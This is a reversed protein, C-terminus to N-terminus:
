HPLLPASENGGASGLKALTKIFIVEWVGVRPITISVVDEKQAFSLPISSHDPSEACVTTVRASSPMQVMLAVNEAPVVREKALQQHEPLQSFTPINFNLIHLIAGSDAQLPTIVLRSANGHTVRLPQGAAAEVRRVLELADPLQRDENFPFLLDETKIPLPKLSALVTPLPKQRVIFNETRQGLLGFTLLTKRATAAATLFDLAADSLCTGTPILFVQYRAAEIESPYELVRVDYPIHAKLLTECVGYLRAAWEKRQFVADAASVLVAVRATSHSRRFEAEHAKQFRYYSGIIDDYPIRKTGWNKAHHDALTQPNVMVGEALGQAMYLRQRDPSPNLRQWRDGVPQSVHNEATSAEEETVGPAVAKDAPVTHKSVTWM